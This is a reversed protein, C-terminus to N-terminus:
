ITVPEFFIYLLVLLLSNFQFVLKNVLFKCNVYYIVVTLTLIVCKNALCISHCQEGGQLSPEVASPTFGCFYVLYPSESTHCFHCLNVFICKVHLHRLMTITPGHLDRVNLRVIYSCNGGSLCETTNM